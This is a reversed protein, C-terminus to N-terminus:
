DGIENWHTSEPRVLPRMISAPDDRRDILIGQEM